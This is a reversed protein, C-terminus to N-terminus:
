SRRYLARSRVALAVAALAAVACAVAITVHTAAFCRPGYCSAVPVPPSAPPPSSAGIIAASSAYAGESHEYIYSYTTSNSQEAEAHEYIYTTLWNAILINGVSGCGGDFFLYNTMLHKRGFLESALVVLMPWMAGFGLGSLAAGGILLAEQM